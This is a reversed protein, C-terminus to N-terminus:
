GRMTRQRGRLLLVKSNYDCKSDIDEEHSRLTSRGRDGRVLVTFECPHDAVLNRDSLAINVIRATLAIGRGQQARAERQQQTRLM